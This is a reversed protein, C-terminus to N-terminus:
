VFVVDVLHERVTYDPRLTLPVPTLLAATAVISLAAIRHIPPLAFYGGADSTAELRRLRQYEQPAVGDTIAVDAGNPLNTLDDVFLVRDGARVDRRIAAPPQVASEAVPVARTGAGHSGYLPLATRIEGPGDPPAYGTVTTVTVTESAEPREPNLRILAAPAITSRDSIRFSEQGSAAASGLRRDDPPATPTLTRSAVQALGASRATTVGPTVAAAFMRLAPNLTTMRGPLAAQVDALSTWFDTVTILAGALPSDTNTIPNRRMTRGRVVTVDRRLSVAGIDVPSWADAVVPDGVAHPLFLGGDLTVQMAGPGLHRIRAREAGAVPGIALFQGAALQAVSDLTLLASGPAPAPATIHRQAIPVTITLDAPLYGDAAVTARLAYSPAALPPFVMWPRGALAFGGDSGVRPTVGLAPTTVVLTGTISRGTEEDVVRGVVLAWLGEAVPPPDDFNVVRKLSGDLVIRRSV